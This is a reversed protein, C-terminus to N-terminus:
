TKKIDGPTPVPTENGYEAPTFSDGFGTGVM